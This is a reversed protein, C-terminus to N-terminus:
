SAGGKTCKTHCIGIHGLYNMINRLLQAMCLCHFYVFYISTMPFDILPICVVIIRNCTASLPDEEIWAIWSWLIEGTPRNQPTVGTPDSKPISLNLCKPTESYRRPVFVGQFFSIRAPCRWFGFISHFELGMQLPKHSWVMVETKPWSKSETGNRMTEVSVHKPSVLVLWPWMKSQIINLGTTTSSWRDMDKEPLVAM